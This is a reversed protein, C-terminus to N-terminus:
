GKSNENAQAERMNKEILSNVYQEAVKEEHSSRLYLTGIVICALVVIIIIWKFIKNM